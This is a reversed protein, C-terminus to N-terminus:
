ETQLEGVTAITLVVAMASGIEAIWHLIGRMPVWTVIFFRHIQASAVTLGVLVLKLRSCSL